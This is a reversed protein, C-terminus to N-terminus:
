DKEILNFKLFTYRIDEIELYEDVDGMIYLPAIIYIQIGLGEENRIKYHISNVFKVIPISDGRYKFYPYIITYTKHRLGSIVVGNITKNIVKIGFYNMVFKKYKVSTLNFFEKPEPRDIDKRNKWILENLGKLNTRSLFGENEVEFKFGSDYWEKDSTLFIRSSGWILPKKNEIDRIVSLMNEKTKIQM